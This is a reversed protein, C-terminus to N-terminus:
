LPVFNRVVALLEKPNFPKILYADAGAEIGRKLDAPQSKSSLMIIPIAVAERRLDQCAEIGGKGPMIVDMMILDPEFEKALEVARTADEYILTEYGHKKFFFRLITRISDNDEFILIKHSM